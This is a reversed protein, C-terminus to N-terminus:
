CDALLNRSEFLRSSREFLRLGCFGGRIKVVLPAFEDNSRVRECLKNVLAYLDSAAQLSGPRLVVGDLLCKWSPILPTLCRFPIRTDSGKTSGLNLLLDTASVTSRSFRKIASRPKVKNLTM